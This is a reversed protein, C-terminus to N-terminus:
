RARAAQPTALQLISGEVEKSFTIFSDEGEVDLCNLLRLKIEPVDVRSSLLLGDIARVRYLIQGSSLNPSRLSSGRYSLATRWKALDSLGLRGNPLPTQGLISGDVLETRVKIPGIAIVRRQSLSDYDIEIRSTVQSIAVVLGIAIGFTFLALHRIFKM